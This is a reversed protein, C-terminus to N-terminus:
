SVAESDPVPVVDEVRIDELKQSVVTSAGDRSMSVGYLMDAAEMSRKQHTVILVQSSGAFGKILGLFRHLNVDDLAAEVEDLLYFPSPRARFISFLFGLATLAREGGSLLSIRKVRKRGPRAEIEIGTHLPDAPDTLMLRGEGGPFLESFLSEFEAAVDRFASDFLEIVQEEVQRIVELLDRRAKRVDDLERALFDHREQLSGYEGEALLNVRGLLALRRQVLEARKALAEVTDEETLERVAHEPDLQHGERLLREADEIRRTLEGRLRDEDEYAERLHDLEAAAARWARNAGAEATGAVRDAEVAEDRATIAATLAQEALLLRQEAADREAEADEVARGLVAPDAAALEEREETLRALTSELRNRERRLTEV